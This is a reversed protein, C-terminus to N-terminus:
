LGAPTLSCPMVAEEDLALVSSLQKLGNYNRSDFSQCTQEKDHLEDAGQWIAAVLLLNGLCHPRLLLKSLGIDKFLKNLLGSLYKYMPEPLCASDLDISAVLKELSEPQRDFRYNFLKHLEKAVQLCHAEDLGYKERLGEKRISSLLVHRIDGLAIFPLDKLLEGTSGGDDTVCVIAKTQPFVEKLGCFPEGPWNEKRSDGGIINSLGTGGGLVVVRTNQVEFESLLSALDGLGTVIEHPLGEPSGQLELHILKEALEQQPLLDLPSQVLDDLLTLSDEIAKISSM